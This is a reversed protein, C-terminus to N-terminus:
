QTYVDSYKVGNDVCESPYPKKLSKYLTKRFAVLTEYGPSLAFGFHRVLPREGKSHVLMKFGAASNAGHTYENQEVNLRLYLGRSKGSKQVTLRRRNSKHNFTYCVGFDTTMATTFNLPGCKEYLEWTCLEIAGEVTHATKRLLDEAVVTQAIKLTILPLYILVM